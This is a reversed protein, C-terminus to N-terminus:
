AVRRARVRAARRRAASWAVRSTLALSSRPRAHGVMVSEVRGADAGFWYKYDEGGRGFDVFRRGADIGSRIALGVVVKGLGFSRAEPEYGGLYLYHGRQWRSAGASACAPAARPPM